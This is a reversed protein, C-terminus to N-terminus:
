KKRSGGVPRPVGPFVRGAAVDRLRDLSGDTSVVAAVKGRARYWAPLKGPKGAPKGAAKDAPKGDKGEAAKRAAHRRVVGGLVRALSTVVFMRDRLVTSAVHYLQRYTMDNVVREESTSRTNAVLTVADM